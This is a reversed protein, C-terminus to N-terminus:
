YFIATAAKSTMVKHAENMLGLSKARGTKEVRIKGNVMAKFTKKTMNQSEARLHCKRIESDSSIKAEFCILLVM